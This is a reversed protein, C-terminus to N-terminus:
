DQEPEKKLRFALASISIVAGMLLFANTLSKDAIQGILFGMLMVYAGSGMSILSLVTARSEDAIHTNLHASLLPSKLSQVGLLVCFLPVLGWGGTVFAFVFYLLGPLLTSILLATRSGLIKELLYAYRACLIGVGSAIALGLGLWAPPLGADIFRPQYLNILYDRFPVTFIALAILLRFVRNTRILQWGYKLYRLSNEHQETNNSIRQHDEKLTFTLLFGVAVCGATLAIAIIFRTQSLESLLWGGLAFAILSASQSAAQIVGMARTMQDISNTKKLDEYVLSEICGSSFAFGLGGVVGCIAFLWYQQAFLFIVEGSLQLVLALIIAKKRGIRDAIMGTPIETLFMTGTIIAWLSNIMTYNLGKEQLYLTAIPVYFYLTSFFYVLTLQSVNGKGFPFLLQQIRAKM